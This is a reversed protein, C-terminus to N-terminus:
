YRQQQGTWPVEGTVVSSAKVRRRATSAIRRFGAGAPGNTGHRSAPLGEGEFIELHSTPTGNGLRGCRTLRVADGFRENEVSASLSLVQITLLQGHRSSSCLMGAQASNDSSTSSDRSIPPLVAISTNCSSEVARISNGPCRRARDYIAATTVLM